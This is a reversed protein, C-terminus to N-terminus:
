YEIEVNELEPWLEEPIHDKIGNINWDRGYFGTCSDVINGEDDEISFGYVDGTIYQDFTEIESELVNLVRERLKASIRKVSYEKRVAEKSVYIYGVKGSDWRCGFPTTKMTIGSHDYLYLPLAIYQEFFLEELEKLRDNSYQYSRVIDLMEELWDCPDDIKEEGLIYNRHKYAITGLTDWTRPSDCDGSDQRIILKM